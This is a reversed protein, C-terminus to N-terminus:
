IVLSYHLEKKSAETRFLVPHVTAFAINYAGIDNSSPHTIATYMFIEQCINVELECSM